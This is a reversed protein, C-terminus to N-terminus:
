WLTDSFSSFGGFLWKFYADRERKKANKKVALHNQFYCVFNRSRGPGRDLDTPLLPCFRRLASLHIEMPNVRFQSHLNGRCCLVTTLTAKLESFPSGMFLRKFLRTQPKFLRATSGQIIPCSSYELQFQIFSVVGPVGKGKPLKPVTEQLIEEASKVASYGEPSSSDRSTNAVAIARFVSPWKRQM